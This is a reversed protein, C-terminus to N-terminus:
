VRGAKRKPEGVAGAGVVEDKVQYPSYFALDNLGQRIAARESETFDRDNEWDIKGKNALKALLYYFQHNKLM